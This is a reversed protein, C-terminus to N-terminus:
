TSSPLCNHSSTCCAHLTYLLMRNVYWADIFVILQSNPTTICQKMTGAIYGEGRSLAEIEEETLEGGEEEDENM